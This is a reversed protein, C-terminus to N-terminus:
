GEGGVDCYNRGERIRETSALCEACFVVIADPDTLVLDKTGKCSACRTRDVAPLQEKPSIQIETM